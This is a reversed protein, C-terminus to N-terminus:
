PLEGEPRLGSPMEPKRVDFLFLAHSSQVAPGYPSLSVQEKDPPAPLRRLLCCPRCPVPQQGESVQNLCTRLM